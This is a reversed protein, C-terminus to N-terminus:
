AKKNFFAQREEGVIVGMQLFQMNTAELDGFTCDINHMNKLIAIVTGKEIPSM